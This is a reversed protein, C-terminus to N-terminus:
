ATAQYKTLARRVPAYTQRHESCPGHEKLAQLHGASGYGKHGAFGYEPREESLIEMINDRHTKALISAAAISYSVQDGKIIHECIIDTDLKAPSGDILLRGPKQALAQVARLMALHDAQKINIRDIERPGAQGVAWITNAKIWIAAKERQKASLTKSDRIVEGGVGREKSFSLPFMVAAAVVPGALAGLGASDIGAVSLSHQWHKNEYAFSPTKM